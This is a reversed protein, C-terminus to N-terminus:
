FVGVQLMEFIELFVGFNVCILAVDFAARLQDFDALDLSATGLDGPLCHTLHVTAM